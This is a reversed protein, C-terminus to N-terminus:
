SHSTNQLNLSHYICHTYLDKSYSKKVIAQVCHFNSSMTAAGDYGPGRLTDLDLGLEKLTNQLVTTLGLGTVDYIPVFTLFNEQIVIL